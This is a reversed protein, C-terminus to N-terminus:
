RGTLLENGSFSFETLNGIGDLQPPITGTLSNNRIYLYALSLLEGLETPITGVLHNSEVNLYELSRLHGLESPITGTLQNGSIDLRELSLLHGLETPITGNLENFNILLSNLSLLLGLENPISSMLSNRGLNIIELNTLLGLEWPLQGLLSNSPLVLEDVSEGDLRCYVGYVDTGNNWTCVDNSSLYSQSWFWNSGDTAYFLVALVYRQLLDQTSRSPSMIITDNKMWALAQSQPSLPESFLELDEDSTANLSRLEELLADDLTPASGIINAENPAPAMIGGIILLVALIGLLLLTRKKMVCSNSSVDNVEAAVIVDGGEMQRRFLEEAKQAIWAEVEQDDDAPALFAVIQPEM